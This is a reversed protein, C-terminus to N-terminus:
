ENMFSLIVLYEAIRVGEAKVMTPPNRIVCEM